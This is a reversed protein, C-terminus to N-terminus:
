AAVEKEEVATLLHVVTRDRLEVLSASGLKRNDITRASVATIGLAHGGDALLAELPSPFPVRKGGKQQSLRRVVLEQTGSVTLDARENSIVVVCSLFVRVTAQAQQPEDAETLLRNVVGVLESVRQRM